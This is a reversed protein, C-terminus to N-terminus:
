KWGCNVNQNMSYFNWSCNTVPSLAKGGKDQDMFGKNYKREGTWNIPSPISCSQHACPVWGPDDWQVKSNWNRNKRLSLKNQEHILWLEEGYCVSQSIHKFFSQVYGKAWFYWMCSLIAQSSVKNDETMSISGFWECHPETHQNRLRRLPCVHPDHTSFYSTCPFVATNRWVFALLLITGSLM